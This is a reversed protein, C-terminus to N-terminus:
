VPFYGEGQDLIVTQVFGEAGSDLTLGLGHAAKAGMGVDDGDEVQALFLVM